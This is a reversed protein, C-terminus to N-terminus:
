YTYGLHALAYSQSQTRYSSSGLGFGVKWAPGIPLQLLASTDYSWERSIEEQARVHQFDVDAAPIPHFVLQFIQYQKPFREVTSIVPGSRRAVFPTGWSNIQRNSFDRSATQQMWVFRGDLWPTFQARLDVISGSLEITSYKTENVNGAAPQLPDAGQRRYSNFFTARAQARDVRFGVMVHPEFTSIKELAAYEFNVGGGVLFDNALQFELGTRFITVKDGTEMKNVYTTLALNAEWTLDESQSLITGQLSNTTESDSIQVTDQIGTTAAVCPLAGWFLAM